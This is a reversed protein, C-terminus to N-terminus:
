PASAAGLHTPVQGRLGRVWQAPTMARRGEPVIELLRLAGEGCSVVDGVLEGTAGPADDLVECARVALRRGNATTRARGLRVIRALERAPRRFDLELELETIKKATTPEGVQPVPEPLGGPGDELLDVLLGIGLTVLEARLTALDKDDVDTTASAYLPGTDLTPELRMVCVGTVADGALIAREVPAAGRWRPLLSFHLNCMTAHELVSTPVMAGFAVVVGLDFDTTALDEVRETVGIGRALAAAKVPTPTARGGRGRRQDPRSVVCVVDHGADVLADLVAVAFSPSGCFALRM